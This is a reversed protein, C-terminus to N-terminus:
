CKGVLSYCASVMQLPKAAGSKELMKASGLRDNQSLAPPLPPHLLSVNQILTFYLRGAIHFANVM